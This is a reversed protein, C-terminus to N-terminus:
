VIKSKRLCKNYKSEVDEATGNYISSPKLQDARRISYGSQTSVHVWKRPFSVTRIYFPTIM